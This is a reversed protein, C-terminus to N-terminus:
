AKPETLIHSPESARGKLEEDIKAVRNVWM